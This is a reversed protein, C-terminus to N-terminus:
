KMRSGSRRISGMSRGQPKPVGSGLSPAHRRGGNEDRAQGNPPRVPSRVARIHRFALAHAHPCGGRRGQLIRHAHDHAASGTLDGDPELAAAGDHGNGAARDGPEFRAGTAVTMRPAPGEDPDHDPDCGREENVIHAAM